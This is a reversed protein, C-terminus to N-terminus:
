SARALVGPGDPLQELARRLAEACVGGAALGAMRGRAAASLAAYRTPDTEAVAASELFKAYLDSWALRGWTTELRREPDHPWFTPEPTMRTVFGVTDDMYDAMATHGPAIAPRGAALAQQLPLCAGEARSTNVYYTSARLLERMQADDLFETVVVVRCRHGELGLSRYEERLIALERFERSPNTAAKIVLTVEPRDRFALIFASLMDLHNKRRDSLNFISTYVLGSLTLPSRPLLPDNVVAPPLGLAGLVSEKAATVKAVAAPSLWRRVYFHYRNRLADYIVRGPSKRPEGPAKGLLRLVIQKVRSVRAVVKPSLWPYVQRFARRGREWLRRKWSPAGPAPEPLAAEATKEAEGGWVLHRAEITWSHDPDWPPIGFDEARVPIPVVAVPCAVGARRFAAASFRCATVILDARAGIRAWNQRTDHGFDRDPVDPFEWFPFLITPVGPSLYCDQPPNLALHVPRYGEAEARAAAFPLRSEPRDILRWTGFQVLLPAIAELVFYYSYAASGMRERIGQACPTTSVLFAFPWSEGRGQSRITPM